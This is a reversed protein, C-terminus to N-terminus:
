ESPHTSPSVNAPVSGASSSSAPGQESAIAKELQRARWAEKLEEGRRIIDKFLQHAGNADKVGVCSVKTLGALEKSRHRRKRTPQTSPGPKQSPGHQEQGMQMDTFMARTLRTRSLGYVVPIKKLECLDHIRSVLDDLGGPAEIKEINPAMIVLSITKLKVGKAIERLGAAYRRNMRAKIPNKERARLEFKRLLQLFTTIMEDFQSDLIQNVYERVVMNQHMRCGPPLVPMSHSPGKKPPAGGVGEPYSSTSASPTAVGGASASGACAPPVLTSCCPTDGEHEARVQDSCGGGQAAVMSTEECEQGSAGVPADEAAGAGAGEGCGQVELVRNMALTNRRRERETQIIKKMTTPKKKKQKKGM